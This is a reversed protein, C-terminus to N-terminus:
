ERERRYREEREQNLQRIIPLVFELLELELDPHEYEWHGYACSWKVAENTEQQQPIFMGEKCVFHELTYRCTCTVKDFFLRYKAEPSPIWEYIITTEDEMFKRWNM